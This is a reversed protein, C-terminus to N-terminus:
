RSLLRVLHELTEAHVAGHLWVHGGPLQVEITPEVSSEPQAVIPPSSEVVVPLLTVGNLNGERHAKRWKFVQNANIDYRRAVRSVSAGRKLSAEVVERKFEPTLRRRPRRATLTKTTVPDESTDV